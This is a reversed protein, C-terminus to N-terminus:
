ENQKRKVHENLEIKERKSLPNIPGCPFAFMEMAVTILKITEM